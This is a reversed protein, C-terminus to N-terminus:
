VQKNKEENLRAVEKELKELRDLKDKDFKSPQVLLVVMLIISLFPILGSLLYWISKRGKSKAIFYTPLGFLLAMFLYPLITSLIDTAQGQYAFILYKTHHM